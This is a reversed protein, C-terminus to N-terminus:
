DALMVPAISNFENKKKGKKFFVYAHGFSQWFDTLRFMRALTHVAM